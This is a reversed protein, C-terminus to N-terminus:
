AARPLGGDGPATARLRAEMAKYRHDQYALFGGMGAVVTLLGLVVAVATRGTGLTWVMALAVGVGAVLSNVAAIMSATTFFGLFWSQRLGMSALAETAGPVGAADRPGFFAPARPSLTKYYARIDAIRALLEVNQVGTDVLRVISFVGLVFVAPLVSAVFPVLFAESQAVFGLAILSSSLTVMYLSARGAAEGVTTSAQSQLAFHETVLASMFAAEDGADKDVEDNM